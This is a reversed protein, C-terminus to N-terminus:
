DESDLQRKSTLLRYFGYGAATIIIANVILMFVWASGTM